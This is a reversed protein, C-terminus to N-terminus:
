SLEPPSRLHLQGSHLFSKWSDRSPFAPEAAEVFSLWDSSKRGCEQSTQSYLFCVLCKQGSDFSQNSCWVTAPHSHSSGEASPEEAAVAAQMQHGAPGFHFLYLIHPSVLFLSFAVLAICYSRKNRRRVNM